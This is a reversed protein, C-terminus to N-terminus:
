EGLKLIAEKYTKIKNKKEQYAEDILEDLYSKLSQLDLKTMQKSKLGTCDWIVVPFNARNLLIAYDDSYRPLYNHGMYTVPTELFADYKVTEEKILQEYAKKDVRNQYEQTKSIDVLKKDKIMFKDPNTKFENYLEEELLLEYSKLPADDVIEFVYGTNLNLKHRGKLSKKVSWKETYKNFVAVEDAGLEPPAVPTTNDYYAYVPHGAKETSRIDLRPEFSGLLNGDTDYSYLLMREGM